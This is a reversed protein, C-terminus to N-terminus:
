EWGYPDVPEFLLSALEVPANQLSVLLPKEYGSVVHFRIWRKGDKGPKFHETHQVIYVLERTKLDFLWNGPVASLPTADYFEGAYNRPKKQLWNMPNEIAMAPVDSPKGRTLIQAYQLTLASQVTGVVQEMATKEALEQYFMVRSIFLGLLVSIIIVVVVLEFLTFGRSSQPNRIASQLFGPM